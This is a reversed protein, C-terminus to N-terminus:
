FLLLLYLEVRTFKVELIIRIKGKNISSRLQVKSLYAQLFKSRIYYIDIYNFKLNKEFFVEIKGKKENKIYKYAALLFFLVKELKILM